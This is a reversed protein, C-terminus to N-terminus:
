SQTPPSTETQQQSEHVKLAIMREYMGMMKAYQYGAAGDLFGLKLFYIYIFRLLPKLPTRGALRKLERRRAVAGGLFLNRWGIPRNADAIIHMAEDTSYRNHKEIWNAIGKSFSYHDFDNRLVGVENTPATERQGHGAM